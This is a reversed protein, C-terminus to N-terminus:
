PTPRLHLESGTNSHSNSHSHSAATACIQGWLRPVEMHQLQPGLFCFLCAFLCFCVVKEEALYVLLNIFLCALPPSWSPPTLPCPPSMEEWLCVLFVNVHPTIRVSFWNFVPLLVGTCGLNYSLYVHLLTLLSSFHFHSPNISHHLNSGQGPVKWMGCTHGFFCFFLFGSIDLTSFVSFHSIEHM